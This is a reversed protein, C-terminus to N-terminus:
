PFEDLFHFGARDLQKDNESAIRNIVHRDIEVERIGQSFHFQDHMVRQVRIFCRPSTM